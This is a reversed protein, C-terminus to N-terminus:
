PLEYWLVLNEDTAPEQLEGHVQGDRERTLIINVKGEIRNANHVLPQMQHFKEGMSAILGLGRHVSPLCGAVSSCRVKDIWM